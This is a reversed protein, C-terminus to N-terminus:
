PYACGGGGGGGSHSDSIRSFISVRSFLNLILWSYFRSYTLLAFFPFFLASM